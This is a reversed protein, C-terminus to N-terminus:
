RAKLRINKRKEQTIDGSSKKLGEVAHEAADVIIGEWEHDSELLKKKGPLHFLKSAILMKEIGTVM